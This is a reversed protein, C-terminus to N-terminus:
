QTEPPNGSRDGNAGSIDTIVWGYTGTPYSGSVRCSAIAGTPRVVQLTFSADGSGRTCSGSPARELVAAIPFVWVNSNDAHTTPRPGRLVPIVTGSSYSQAVRFLENDVLLFIGASIGTASNVTISTANTSTVPETITTTVIDTQAQTQTPWAVLTLFALLLVILSKKM